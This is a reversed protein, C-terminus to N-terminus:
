AIPTANLSKLLYQADQNNSESTTVAVSARQSVDNTTSVCPSQELCACRAAPTCAQTTFRTLSARIKDYDFQLRTFHRNHVSHAGSRLAVACRRHVIRMDFTSTSFFHADPCRLSRRLSIRTTTNKCALANFRLVYADLFQGLATIGGVRWCMDRLYIFQQHRVRDQVCCQQM